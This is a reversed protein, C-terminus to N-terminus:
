GGFLDWGSLCLLIALPLALIYYGILNVAAGLHQKGCGVLVGSCVGQIGDFFQCFALLPIARGVLDAVPIESVFFFGIQYRLIIMCVGSVISCALIISLSIRITRRVASPHGAGLETGVRIAVATSIGQSIMFVIESLQAIIAQAALQTEGTVGIIVSGIEFTWSELCIMLMGFLAVTLFKGWEQFIETVTAQLKSTLNLFALLIYAFLPQLSWSIVQAWAVGSLGWHLVNVFLYCSVIININCTIGLFIVPTALGLSQIYKTALNHVALGPLSFFYIKAFLGAAKAAEPSQKLLVLITEANYWLVGIPLMAVIQLVYARLTIVWLRQNNGTGVAQTGYTDIVTTLGYSPHIGTINCFAIALAVAAMEHEGLHGCFAMSIAVTSQELLLVLITPWAFQVISALEDSRSGKSGFGRSLPLHDAAM